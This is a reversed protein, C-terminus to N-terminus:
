SPSCRSQLCPTLPEFGSMEVLVNVVSYTSRSRWFATFCNVPDEKSNQREFKVHGPSMEEAISSHNYTSCALLPGLHIGLCWSGLFSAAVQSLRRPTPLLRHDPSKQIPYGARPLARAGSASCM